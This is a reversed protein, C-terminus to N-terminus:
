KWGEIATKLRSEAAILFNGSTVVTEGEELGSAIEVADGATVGLTVERPALRGDGLDVFVFRREGAYLVAEKPVVLREGLDADFVVVAYMEPKLELGPNPIEIRARGTRTGGDLFPYVLAVRGEVAAGGLHPFSVRVAQGVTVGALQPEYLEAEVWVPDLAAIRLLREGPQVAAGAVVNKEVVFGSTRAVVPVQESAKGSRAIADIQADTVDWLKLRMRAARVLYDARDPAAGGAAAGRSRVAALLEQQAAFLEPSYLTFLPEGREVRMGVSDAYLEGIWGKYKVTVDSLASEDYAVRGVTRTSLRVERREVPTTRVGILQRREPSVSITGSEIGDRRVAVLDMSCIPCQGPEPSKVSPHMPCTWYAIEDAEAAPAAADGPSSPRTEGHVHRASPPAGARGRQDGRRGCGAAILAAALPPVLIWAILRAAGASPARGRGHHKKM